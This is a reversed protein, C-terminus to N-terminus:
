GLAAALVTIAQALAAPSITHAVPDERYSVTLGAEELVARAQRGFEVGIVPDLSGHAISVPLGARSELDLEFEPVTPIFGSFALIAAPNPREAGLGLAYSMVAGQSFGGVVTRDWGLGHEALVGELHESLEAYTSLFTEADPFGIERVIYWHRGGPPLSLPGRPFVGLLRRDPDLLSLLPELDGADAGRGHILIVAGEPSGTDPATVTTEIPTRATAM